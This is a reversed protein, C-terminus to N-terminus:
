RVIVLAVCWISMSCCAISSLFGGLPSLGLMLGLTGPVLSKSNACSHSSFESCHPIFLQLISCRWHILCFSCAVVWSCIARLWALVISFSVVSSSSSISFMRACIDSDVKCSMFLFRGVFVALLLLTLSCAFPEFSLIVGLLTANLMSSVAVGDVDCVGCIRISWGVRM